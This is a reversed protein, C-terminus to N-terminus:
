NYYNSRGNWHVIYAESIKEASYDSKWGLGTLDWKSSVIKLRGYAVIMLLPQTGLTWLTHKHHETMWYMIEEHIKLERWLNLNVGYVGGM